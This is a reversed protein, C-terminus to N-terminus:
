RGSRGTWSTPCSRWPAKERSSRNSEWISVAPPRARDCGPTSIRRSWSGGPDKALRWPPGLAERVEDEQSEPVGAAHAVLRRLTGCSAVARAGLRAEQLGAAIAAGFETTLGEVWDAPIEECGIEILLDKGSM